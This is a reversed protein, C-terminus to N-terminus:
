LEELSERPDGSAEREARTGPLSIGFGALSLLSNMRKPPVTLASNMADIRHKRGPSRSRSNRSNSQGVAENTIVREVVSHHLTLQHAITGVPWKENHHPRLIQAELERSIM